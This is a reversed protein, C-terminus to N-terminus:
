IVFFDGSTIKLHPKLKAIEVAKAAGSGDRDYYLYGTDKNYIVYDNRDDAADGIEFFAKNMKLPKSESGKGIKTFVSNDLFFRDYKPNFDTIRDLSGSKSVKDRFVFTDRGSGGSLVDRGYGGDLTDNGSGGSLRDNGRRGHIEDDGALGYLSNRDANGYIVNSLSNGSGTKGSDLFLAEVNDTLAYNISAYVTDYGQSLGEVVLDGPNDVIYTDNGAEGRLNDAGPGGDLRDDGDGGTLVDNGDGGSILDNGAGGSLTDDGAGGSMVDDANGGTMTDNGGSGSPLVVNEIGSLKSLDYGAVTIIVRDNGGADVVVDNLDDIYYVDDGLGGDLHDAGAGGNLTDNGAYGVLVDAQSGGQLSDAGQFALADINPTADKHLNAFGETTGGGFLLTLVPGLIPNLLDLLTLTTRTGFDVNLSLGTARAVIAEGSRVTVSNYVGSAAITNTVLGTSANLTWQGEYEYTLGGSEFVFRSYTETRTGWGTNSSILGEFRENASVGTNQVWLDTSDFGGANTGIYNSM